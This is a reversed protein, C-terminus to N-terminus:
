PAAIVKIRAHRARDGLVSLPPVVKESYLNLAALGNGPRRLSLGSSIAIALRQGIANETTMATEGIALWYRKHAGVGTIIDTIYMEKQCSLM